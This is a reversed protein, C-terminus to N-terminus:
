LVSVETRSGRSRGGTAAREQAVLLVVTLATASGCGSAEDLLAAASERAQAPAEGRALLRAYLRAAMPWLRQVQAPPVVTRRRLEALQQGISPRSLGLGRDGAIPRGPSPAPRRRGQEDVPPRGDPGLRRTRVAWAEIEAADWARPWSGARPAPMARERLYARARQQTARDPGNRALEEVRRRQRALDYVRPVTLGLWAAIVAVTVDTNDSSLVM